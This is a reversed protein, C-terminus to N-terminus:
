ETAYHACKQVSTYEYIKMKHVTYVTSCVTKASHTYYKSVAICVIHGGRGCLHACRYVSSKWHACHTKENYVLYVLPEHVCEHVTQAGLIM